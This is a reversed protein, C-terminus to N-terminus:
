QHTAQAVQAARPLLLYEEGPADMRGARDEAAPGWGFFIDARVPGVIAGGLDQAMMLRRLPTGDVPDKSAVWVPAGLPVYRQDVAASRGPTLPAGLAGRPGEEASLDSVEEFFVYSPNADMMAAARDPHANLWARISQMTVQDKALEGQQILVRGIPVYPRGNQASINVRVVKGNPLRVRGSGQIQLFFADVPDALWLLELRKGHLVGHEVIDAREYYPVLRGEDVRGSVARGKLDAAFQGLDALVLDNPRSLLPVTYRGGPSRSGEVEPEWYGTFLGTYRDAPAASGADSMAYPQFRSEFFTRAAKEDGPPVAKAADCVARWQGATGGLAAAEGQGGLGHGPAEAVIAACGRLFSPLAEALHDNQWGPLASFGVPALSLVHTTGGPGPMAPPLVCGCLGLV